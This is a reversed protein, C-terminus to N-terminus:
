VQVGLNSTPGYPVLSGVESAASITPKLKRKNVAAPAPVPPIGSLRTDETFFTDVLNESM